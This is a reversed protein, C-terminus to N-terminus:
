RYGGATPRRLAGLDDPQNQQAAAAEPTFPQASYGRRAASSSGLRRPEYGTELRDSCGALSGALVAAALCYAMKKGTLMKHRSAM